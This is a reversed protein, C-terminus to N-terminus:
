GGGPLASASSMMGQASAVQGQNGEMPSPVQPGERGDGGQQHGQIDQGMQGAMKLADLRAKAQLMEQKAQKQLIHKERHRAAMIRAEDSIDNRALLVDVVEIHMEDDDGNHIDVEQGQELAINELEPSVTKKDRLSKFIDDLDNLKFGEKAVRKFLMPIDVEGPMLAQIQLAAQFFGMLQQTYVATKEAESEGKWIFDVDGVLDSPDIMETRWSGNDPGQVRIQYAETQFQQLLIHTRKALPCLVDSEELKSSIRQRNGVSSQVIAAQTASRAKGQLQPAVGPTSDAFQAVQGRIEGMARFGSGSVDPFQKFEIGEPSGLWKAGPKVKMSNVDGALAPDIIAIPNISYNLSDMTQNAIDNMQYQLSRLKDPMSFGYFINGPREKLKSALYPSQQFWFPNRKLYICTTKNAIIGRVPVSKGNGLKFDCWIETLLVSNYYRTLANTLQVMQLREIDVWEHDIDNTVETVDNLNVYGANEDLSKKSVIQDEFQFEAEQLTKVEEPYIYWRFIDVPRATVGNVLPILQKEPKGKKNRVFVEVTKREFGQKMIATGYLLKGRLHQDYQKIIKVKEELEYQVAMTIKDADSQQVNKTAIAKCFDGTPFLATLNREVSSEIQDNLEPVFFSSNGVYGENDLLCSWLRLDQLWTEELDRRNDRAMQLPDNVYDLFRSAIEPNSAYNRGFDDLNEPSQPLMEANKVNKTKKSAM